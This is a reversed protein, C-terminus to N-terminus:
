LWRGISANEYFIDIDKQTIIKYKEFLDDFIEKDIKTDEVCGTNEALLILFNRIIIIKENESINKDNYVTIIIEKIITKINKNENFEQEENEFKGAIQNEYFNDLLIKILNLKNRYNIGKQKLGKIFDIIETKTIGIKKHFDIYESIGEMSINNKPLNNIAETIMEESNLNKM